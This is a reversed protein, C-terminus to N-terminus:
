GDRYGRARVTAFERNTQAVFEQLESIARSADRTYTSESRM